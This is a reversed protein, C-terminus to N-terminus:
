PNRRTLIRKRVQLSVETFLSDELLPNVEIQDIRVETTTRRDHNQILIREPLVHGGRLTMHSRPAQFVKFPDESEQYKFYRIELIAYDSAAIVFEAGQYASDYRPQVRVLFVPEGKLQSRSESVITYDEAYRRELDEYTLDTGMFRGARQASSVRRVRKAYPFYVFTDDHRGRQEIILIATGYDDPPHTFRGLTRLQGAIRKTAMEVIYRREAGRHNRVILEIGQALDLDYRNALARELVDDAPVAERAVEPNEASSPSLACVLLVMALVVARLFLEIRRVGDQGLTLMRRSEGRRLLRGCGM